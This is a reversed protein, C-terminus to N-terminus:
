YMLLYVVFLYFGATMKRFKNHFVSARVRTDKKFHAYIEQEFPLM